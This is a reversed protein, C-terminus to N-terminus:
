WRKTLTASIVRGLSPYNTSDYPPDILSSTRITQPKENFLNSVAVSLDAGRFIGQTGSVKAVLDVSIFSAIRIEPERRNDTVGGIYNVFASIMVNDQEFTAGGRTRWNPPYFIVGATPTTPQGALLRRDSDIYSGAVNLDVRGRGALDFDYRASLDVGRIAQYATNQARADVVAYVTAPDYPEGTFNQLGFAGAAPAILQDLLEPSPAYTILSSYTSSSFLGVTSTLPNVVRNRYKINYYDAELRLGPVSTPTFAASITWASAREPKLDPNGGALYLLTKDGIVGAQGLDAAGILLAQYVKYRQYFTPAKFSKGWSGKITVSPTPRYVIGVKPSAVDALNEYREYRVAGSLQLMDFIPLRNGPGFIPISIEGFAYEVSEQHDIDLLNISVSGAEISSKSRLSFGRFGGGVALGVNGGPLSFVTGDGRLEITYLRNDYFVHSTSVLAGASYASGPANTISRSYTGALSVKWDDGVSANVVPSISYSVVRPFYINGDTRADSTTTTPNAFNSERRSYQADLALEISRTLAQYGNFVASYQKQYPILTSSGNLQQTYSRQAATVASARNFDGAVMFGGSEWKSGSVADYQESFAGGDTAGSIRASTVVGQFDKRLIVNAVGGVADSGYLASAGDPVIEIRELAALPIASIDVGQVAGDYAVRHGNILTLTADPGLGRLNLASTSAVNESGGQVGGGVVGPNQGGSFNQPLDRIYEGLSAQGGREIDARSATIVNDAPESKRIRTGTVVVVDDDDFAPTGAAIAASRGRIVVAGKDFRVSLNTGRVLREVAERATFSGHLSPAPVGNLDDASAYLEWGAKAAVARLADGLDQAPLDFQYVQRDSAVACEPVFGCAISAMLVAIVHFRKGAM